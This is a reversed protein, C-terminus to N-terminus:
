EAAEEATPRMLARIRAQQERNEAQYFLIIREQRAITAELAAMRERMSAKRANEAAHRDHHQLDTM